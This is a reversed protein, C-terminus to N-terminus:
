LRRLQIGWFLTFGAFQILEWVIGGSEGKNRSEKRQRPGLSQAELFGEARMLLNAAYLWKRECISSPVTAWLWATEIM